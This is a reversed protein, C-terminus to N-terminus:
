LGRLWEVVLETAATPVAKHEADVEVFRSKPHAPALDFAYARDRNQPDRAGVVWLIPLATKIAAASKPMVAPGEPDLYSLYAQATTYMELEKGMNVDHFRDKDQGQGSAVLNRARKVDAAFRERIRQREPSHAAALCVVADLGPYRAAYALAANGGLSHGAVVVKAAGRARLERVAADIEALGTDYGQAFLRRGSWPMEPASVLFGADRLAAALESVFKDPSGTKGHLVVVGTTGAEAALAQTPPFFLASWALIFLSALSLLTFLIFLSHVIRRM